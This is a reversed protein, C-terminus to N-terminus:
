GPVVSARFLLLITTAKSKTLTTSLPHWAVYVVAQRGDLNQRPVRGITWLPSSVGDEDNINMLFVTVFPRIGYDNTSSSLGRFYTQPHNSM